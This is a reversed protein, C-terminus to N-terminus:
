TMCVELESLGQDSFILMQWFMHVTDLPISGVVYRALECACLLGHTTRMICGCHSSDIDAYNVRELEIAIQNLAYRPVMGILRKYLIVKFVHRVVHTNRKFSTKIENHQLIIM